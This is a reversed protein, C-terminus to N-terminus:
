GTDLGAGGLAVWAHAQARALTDSLKPPRRPWALMRAPLPPGNSGGRAALLRRLRRATREPAAAVRILAELRLALPRASCLRAPAARTEGGVRRGLPRPLARFAVGAWRESSTEDADEGAAVVEEATPAARREGRRAARGRAARTTADGGMGAVMILLMARAVGELTRLVARIELAESRAVVARALLVVPAGAIAMALRLLTAFDEWSPRDDPADTM